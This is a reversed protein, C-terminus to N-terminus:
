ALSRLLEKSFARHRHCIEGGDELTFQGRNHFLGAAQRQPELVEVWIQSGPFLFALDQCKGQDLSSLLRRIKVADGESLEGIAVDLDEHKDAVFIAPHAFLM